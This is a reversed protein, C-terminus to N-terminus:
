FEDTSASAAAGARRGDMASGGRCFLREPAAFREANFVPSYELLRPMEDALAHVRRDHPRQGVTLDMTIKKVMEDWAAGAPWLSFGNRGPGGRPPASEAHGFYSNHVRNELSLSSASEVAVSPSGVHSIQGNNIQIM